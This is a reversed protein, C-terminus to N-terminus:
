ENLKVTSDAKVGKADVKKGSPCFEVSVDVSARGGLGFHRETEAYGYYSHVVQRGYIVVQEYAILRKADGLGGAEYVRIKAGAAGKNGAAGIPRIRVWHQPPLQNHYVRVRAPDNWKPQAKYGLIDLRGDGDIDGFCLGADVAAKSVDDIGWAKNMYTFRGGGTGRLVYLFERGNMLVDPIGDNDLDVTVAMGWNAYIPKTAEQMGGVAGELKTFNGKGDNLYVGDVEDDVVRPARADAEPLADAVAALDVPTDEPGRAQVVRPVVRFQLPPGAAARDVGLVAVAVPVDRVVIGVDRGIYAAVHVEDVLRGCLPRLEDAKRFEREIAIVEAVVHRPQAAERVLREPAAMDATCWSRPPPHSVVAAGAGVRAPM